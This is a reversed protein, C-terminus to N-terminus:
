SDTTSKSDLIQTLVCWLQHKLQASEAIKATTPSILIGDTFYIKEVESFQWTFNPLIIGSQSQFLLEAKVNIAMLIDAFFASNILENLPINISRNKSKINPKKVIEIDVTKSYKLEAAITKKVSNEPSAINPLANPYFGDRRQWLSIGMSELYHFKKATFAM